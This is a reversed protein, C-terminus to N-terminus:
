RAGRVLTENHQTHGEGARVGSKVKLRSAKARTENHQTDNIGGGSGGARVGSKVILRKM